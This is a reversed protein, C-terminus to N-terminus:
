LPQRRPPFLPFFLRAGKTPKSSLFASFFVPTTTPVVGGGEEACFVLSLLSFVFPPLAVKLRTFGLGGGRTRRLFYVIRPINQTSKSLFLSRRLRPTFPAKTPFSLFFFFSSSSPSSDLLILLSSLTHRRADPRLACPQAPPHRVACHAGAPRNSRKALSEFSRSLSLCVVLFPLSFLQVFLYRSPSRRCGRCPSTCTTVRMM